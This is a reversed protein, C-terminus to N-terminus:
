RGPAAPLSTPTNIQVLQTLRNWISEPTIVSPTVARYSVSSAPEGFASTLALGVTNLVPPPEVEAQPLLATPVRFNLAINVDLAQGDGQSWHLQLSGFLLFLALLSVTLLTSCLRWHLLLLRM